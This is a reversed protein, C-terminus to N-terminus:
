VKVLLILREFLFLIVSGLNLEGVVRVIHCPPSVPTFDIKLSKKDKGM